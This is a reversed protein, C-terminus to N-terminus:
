VSKFLRFIFVVYCEYEILYYSSLHYLNTKLIHEVASAFAYMAIPAGCKFYIELPLYKVM